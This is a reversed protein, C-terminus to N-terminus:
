KKLEKVFKKPLFVNEIDICEKFMPAIDKISYGALGCGIETVLFKKGKNNKCYEIFVDVYKKISDLTLVKLKEDKTPIAYCTGTIGSGVGRKAKFSRAAQLAAGAGHIGAENSGFVFIENPLLTIVRDPICKFYSGKVSVISNNHMKPDKIVTSRDVVPKKYDLYLLECKNCSPCFEVGGDVTGIFGCASCKVLDFLFIM